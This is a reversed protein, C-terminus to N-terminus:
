PSRSVARSTASTAQTAAPAGTLKAPASNATATRPLLLKFTTLGDQSQVEVRGRHAAAISRVIALGLGTGGERRARGADVRYFRDFIRELHAAAIGEGRNTVSLTAAPGATGVEITVTSHDLAHRIANSVLNTIARQVLLRDAAAPPAEGIVQVSVGKEDAMVSMYEAVRRAEGALDIPEAQIPAGNHDARAIFLMDAILAALRELEEVNGELVERLQDATRTQSLAVQTRGLLTAV